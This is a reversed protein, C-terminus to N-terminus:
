TSPTNVPQCRGTTRAYGNAYSSCRFMTFVIENREPNNIKHFQFENGPMHQGLMHQQDLGYQPPLGLHGPALQPHALGSMQQHALLDDPHAQPTM